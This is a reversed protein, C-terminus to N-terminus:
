RDELDIVLHHAEIRARCAEDIVTVTTTEQILAPGDLEAGNALRERMYVPVEQASLQLYRTPPITDEVRDDIPRVPNMEPTLVVANVWLEVAEIPTDLETGYRRKHEQRFREATAQAGGSVELALEHWQNAYRLGAWREFGYNEPEGLMGLAEQELSAFQAETTESDLEEV